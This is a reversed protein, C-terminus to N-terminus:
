PAWRPAGDRLPVRWCHCHQGALGPPRVDAEELPLAAAAAKVAAMTTFDAQVFTLNKVAKDRFTRGVVTVRSGKAAAAVTPPLDCGPWLFLFFLSLFLTAPALLPGSGLSKVPAARHAHLVRCRVRLAGALGM